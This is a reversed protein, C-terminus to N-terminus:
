RTGPSLDPGLAASALETNHYQCYQWLIIYLALMKVL